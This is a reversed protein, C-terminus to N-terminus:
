RGSTLQDVATAPLELNSASPLNKMGELERWSKGGDRSVFLSSPETGAYVADDVLSIALATVRPHVVGSM